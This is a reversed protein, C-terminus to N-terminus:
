DGFPSQPIPFPQRPSKIRPPSFGTGGGAPDVGMKSLHFLEFRQLGPFAALSQRARGIRQRELFGQAPMEAKGVLNPSRGCGDGCVHSFTVGQARSPLEDSAQAYREARGCFQVTVELDANIESEDGPLPPVRNERERFTGEPQDNAQQTCEGRTALLCWEGTGM